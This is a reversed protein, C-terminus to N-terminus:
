HNYKKNTFYYPIDCRVAEEHAKEAEAWSTHESIGLDKPTLGLIQPDLNDHVGDSMLIIMDKDRCPVM